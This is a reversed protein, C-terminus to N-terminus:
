GIKLRGVGKKKTKRGGELEQKFNSVGKKDGGVCVPIYELRKKHTRASVQTKKGSDM